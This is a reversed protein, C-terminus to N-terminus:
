ASIELLMKAHIHASCPPLWVSQGLIKPLLVTSTTQFCTPVTLGMSELWWSWVGTKDVESNTPVSIAASLERRERCVTQMSRGAHGSGKLRGVIAWRQMFPVQKESLELLPPRLSFDRSIHSTVFVFWGTQHKCDHRQGLWHLWGKGWQGRHFSHISRVQMGRLKFM